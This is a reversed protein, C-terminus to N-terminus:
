NLITARNIGEEDPNQACVVLMRDPTLHRRLNSQAWLFLAARILALSFLYDFVLGKRPPNSLWRRSIEFLLPWRTHDLVAHQRDGFLVVLGGITLDIGTM